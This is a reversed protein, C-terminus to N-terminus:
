ISICCTVLDNLNKSDFIKTNSYCSLFNKKCTRIKTIPFLALNPQSYSIYINKLETFEPQQVKDFIVLHINFIIKENQFPTASLIYLFFSSFLRARSRSNDKFQRQIVELM